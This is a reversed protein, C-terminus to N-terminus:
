IDEKFYLIYERSEGKIVLEHISTSANNDAALVEFSINSRYVYLIHANSYGIDEDREREAQFLLEAPGFSVFSGDPETQNSNLDIRCMVSIQEGYKVRPRFRIPLSEGNAMQLFRQRATISSTDGIVSDYQISIGLVTDRDSSNQNLNRFEISLIQDKNPAGVLFRNPGQHNHIEQNLVLQKSYSHGAINCDPDRCDLSEARCFDLSVSLAAEDMVPNGENPMSIDEDNCSIFFAFCLLFPLYKM